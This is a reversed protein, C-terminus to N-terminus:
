AGPLGSRTRRFSGGSGVDMYRARMFLLGNGESMVGLEGNFEFPNAVGEVAGVTEGFPLYTYRNAYARTGDSLGATSGMRDFDYYHWNSGTADTRSALGLGPGHSYHARLNGGGDYEGVVNGLGTPDLLYETRQGNHVAASRNGLADYEYVWTGSPTVISTLRGIADYAYATDGEAVLNGGADYVFSVGGVNTYQNL